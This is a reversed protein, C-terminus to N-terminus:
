EFGGDFGLDFGGLAPVPPIPPVFIEGVYFDHAFSIDVACILWRGDSFESPAPPVAGRVRIAATRWNRFHALLADAQAIIAADGAGTKGVVYIRFTGLERYCTPSGIAIANESIPIFDLATWLDPLATNDVRVGLTDFVPLLPFASVLEYRFAARVFASSM